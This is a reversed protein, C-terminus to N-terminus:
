STGHILLADAVGRSRLLTGSPFDQPFVVWRNDFTGPGPLVSPTMRMSDLLFAPPAGDRLGLGRLTEAGSALHSAIIEANVIASPGVSTNYLPVPRYGRRAVTLGMTVSEVGPLDVLLVTRGDAPPLWLLDRAGADPAAAPAVTLLHTFLVPKAWPSWAAGTPAWAEFCEENTMGPSRRHRRGGRRARGRRARPRRHASPGRSTWLGRSGAWRNHLRRHVSPRRRRGCRDAVGHIAAPRGM